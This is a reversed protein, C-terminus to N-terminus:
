EFWFSYLEANELWFILRLTTDPFTDLMDREGWQMTHDPSDGNFPTSDDFRWGEPWEGDRVGRGERVAVKIFGDPRTTRANIHLRGGPCTLPRTLVFGGDDGADVSVFRDRQITALCLVAPLDSSARGPGHLRSKGNYYIYVQDGVEIMNHMPQVMGWDYTDKLPLSVPIFTPREPHRDWTIGDRSWALQVDMKCDKGNPLFERGGVDFWLCWLLGLYMGNHRSVAMAYLAPPDLEDCRVAFVPQTWSVLDVSESYAIRRIQGANITARRYQMFVDREPNYHLNLLTDSRSYFVPNEPADTWRIADDSYAIRQMMHHMHEPDPIEDLSITPQYLLAYKGKHRMRQPLPLVSGAPHESCVNNDTGGFHDFLGLNPARWTLGDDSEYYVSCGGGVEHKAFKPDGTDIWIRFLGTEEDRLVCGASPFARGDDARLIPNDPHKVPQHVTRRASNLDDVVHWDMLLQREHGVNVAEGPIIDYSNRLTQNGKRRSTENFAYNIAPITPM